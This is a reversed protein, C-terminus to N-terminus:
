SEITYPFLQFKQSDHHIKSSSLRNIEVSTKILLKQLYIKKKTSILRCNNIKQEPLQKPIIFRRRKQEITHHSKSNIVHGKITSSAM